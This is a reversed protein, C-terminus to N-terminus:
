IKGPMDIINFHTDKVIKNDADINMEVHIVGGKKDQMYYHLKNDKYNLEVTKFVVGDTLGLRECIQQECVQLLERLYSKRLLNSYFDTRNIPKETEVIAVEEGRFVISSPITKISVTRTGAKSVLASIVSSTKAFRAQKDEALAHSFADCQSVFSDLQVIRGTCYRYCEEIDKNGVQNVSRYQKRAQMRYMFKNIALYYRKKIKLQANLM